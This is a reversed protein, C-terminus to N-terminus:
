GGELDLPRRIARGGLFGQTFSGALAVGPPTGNSAPAAGNTGGPSASPLATPIAPATTPTDDLQVAEHVASILREVKRGSSELREMRAEVDRLRRDSERRLELLTLEIPGLRELSEATAAARSAVFEAVSDLERYIGEV